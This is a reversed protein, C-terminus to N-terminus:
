VIHIYNLAYLAIIITIVSYYYTSCLNAVTENMFQDCFILIEHTPSVLTNKGVTM